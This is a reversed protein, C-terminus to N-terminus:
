PSEFTTVYDDLGDSELNDPINILSPGIMFHENLFHLVANATHPRAGEQQFFTEDMNVGM